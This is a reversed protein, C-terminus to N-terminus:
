AKAVLQSSCIWPSHLWPWVPLGLLGLGWGARAPADCLAPLHWSRAPGPMEWQQGMPSGLEEGSGM